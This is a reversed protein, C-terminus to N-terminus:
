EGVVAISKNSKGGSHVPLTEPGGISLLVKSLAETKIEFRASSADKLFNIVKTCETSLSNIFASASGDRGGDRM